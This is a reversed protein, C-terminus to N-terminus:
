PAAEYVVDAEGFHLNTFAVALLNQLRYAAADQVPVFMSLERGERAFTVAGFGDETPDCWAFSGGERPYVGVVRSEWMVLAGLLSTLDNFFWADDPPNPPLPSRAPDWALRRSETRSLAEWADRPLSAGVRCALWLEGVLRSGKRAESMSTGDANWRYGHQSLLPPQTALGAVVVRASAGQRVVTAIPVPDTIGRTARLLAAPYSTGEDYACRVVLPEGGDAKRILSKAALFPLENRTKMIHGVPM